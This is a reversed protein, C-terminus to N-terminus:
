AYDELVVVKVPSLHRLRTDNTIFADARCRIATAVQLLTALLRRFDEVGGM